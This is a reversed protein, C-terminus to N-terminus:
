PKVSCWQWLGNLSCCLLSGPGLVCVKPPFVPHRVKGNTQPFWFLRLREALVNSCCRCRSVKWEDYSILWSWDPLTSKSSHFEGGQKELQDSDRQIFCQITIGSSMIKRFSQASKLFTMQSKRFFSMSNHKICSRCRCCNERPPILVWKLFSFM